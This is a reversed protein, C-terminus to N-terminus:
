QANSPNSPPVKPQNATAAPRSRVLSRGRSREEEERLAEAYYFPFASPITSDIKTLFELVKMKNTEAHARPAWLFEYSLPDSDPIQRYVLYNQQVLKETILKRPDGFIVHQKGDYIDLINLFEWVDAESARNGNLFIVSLLPMLLGNKPLGWSSSLVGDNTLGLNSVLTYSHGNLKVEKLELGFALEMCEAARRLIEPFRTKFRKHFLKLMDIKRIPQKMKFKQLLFHILVGAKKTLPDPPAPKASTSAQSSKRRQMAQRRARAKSRPRSAGAVPSSTAAAGQPNQGVGATPSGPPTSGSTPTPSAAAQADGLDKTEMRAQHCKERGRRKSKQGRPM